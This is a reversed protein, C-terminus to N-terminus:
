NSHSGFIQPYVGDEAVLSESTHTLSAGVYELPPKTTELESPAEFLTDLEVGNEDGTGRTFYDLSAKAIAIRQEIGDRPHPRVIVPINQGDTPTVLNSCFPSDDTEGSDIREILINQSAKCSTLLNIALISIDLM